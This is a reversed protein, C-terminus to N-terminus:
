PKSTNKKTIFRQLIHPINDFHSLLEELLNSATEYNKTDFIQRIEKFYKKLRTKEDESTKKSRLLKYLRDSIMKYFHFICLQHKVGLEDMITKYKLVYDTTIAIIPKNKTSETIFQKITTYGKDPAIKETVPINLIHDYLTLRYMWVSNIKVYQGDYCYYGYYSTNINKIQSETTKQLWNHITQHSIKVGFFNLFDEAINRISKYDTQILDILIDMFLSPYRHGPKIISNLSTTFKKDCSKCLYRRSYLVMPDSNDIKLKRESYENKIVKYSNYHPCIPNLYDMHNNELLELKQNVNRPTEVNQFREHIIKEFDIQAQDFDSLKLQIVGISSSLTSIIESTM